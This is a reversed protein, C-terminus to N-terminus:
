RRRVAPGSRVAAAGGPQLPATRATHSVDGRSAVQARPRGPQHSVRRVNGPCRMTTRTPGTGCGCRTNLWDTARATPRSRRRRESPKMTPIGTAAGPPPVGHALRKPSCRPSYNPWNAYTPASKAMPCASLFRHLYDSFVQRAECNPAVSGRWSEAGECPCGLTHPTATLSRCWRYRSAALNCHRRPRGSASHKTM